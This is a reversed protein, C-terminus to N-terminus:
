ARRKAKDGRDASSSDEDVADNDGDGDNDDDNTDGGDDDENSDDSGSDMGLRKRAEDELEQEVESLQRSTKSHPRKRLVTRRLEGLPEIPPDREALEKAVARQQDSKALETYWRLRQASHTSADRWACGSRSLRVLKKCEAASIQGHLHPAMDFIRQLILATAVSVNLSSGFGHLPLYVHRDSLELMEPSVGLREHGMILALYPPVVLKGGHSPLDLRDAQDNVDAAWITLDKEARLASISRLSLSRARAGVAAAGSVGSPM